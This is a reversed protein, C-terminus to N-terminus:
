PKAGVFDGAKLRYGIITRTGNTAVLMLESKALWTPDVSFRTQITTGAERVTLLSVSVLSKGDTQVRLDARSFNKLAGEAKFEVVVAVGADGNTHSQVGIGMEQAREPSVDEVEMMARGPMAAGLLLAAVGLWRITKM